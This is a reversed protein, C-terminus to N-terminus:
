LGCCAYYAQDCSTLCGPDGACASRCAFRDSRCHSPCIAASVDQPMMWAFSGALVGLAIALKLMKKRM